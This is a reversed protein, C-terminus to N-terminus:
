INDASQVQRSVLSGKGENGALLTTWCIWYNGCDLSKNYDCIPEQFSIYRVQKGDYKYWVHRFALCLFVVAFQPGSSRFFKSPNCTKSHSGNSVFELSISWKDIKGEGNWAQNGGQAARRQRCARVLNTEHSFDM